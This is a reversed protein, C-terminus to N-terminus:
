NGFYARIKEANAKLNNKDDGVQANPFIWIHAHQVEDGIIKSLIWDTNFVKQQAVAIKKAVGFFDGANPVDWVWRYHKKPIILTHGPSQPHIDLFALFDKDEYVIEAPIERKVIKCFVCDTM